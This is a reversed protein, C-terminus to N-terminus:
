VSAKFKNIPGYFYAKAYLLLGTYHFGINGNFDINPYAENKAQINVQFINYGLGFGFHKWAKYEVAGFSDFMGGKFDEYELYFLQTRMRIFWKPTVALNLHLSLAPLPATFSERGQGQILGEASLEIDLPAIYLGVGVGLDLREDLIFSYNYTLRILDMNLVSDVGTGADIVIEEGDPGEIVIDDVLIRTASRHFAVWGLDISHKGWRRMGELRVVTLNSDLNLAEEVDIDLGLGSGIRIRSDLTTFLAGLSVNWTEWPLAGDAEESAAGVTAGFSLMFLLACLCVAFLKM